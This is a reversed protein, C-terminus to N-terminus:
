HQSMGLIWGEIQTVHAQNPAAFKTPNTTAEIMGLAGIVSDFMDEGQQAPGFGNRIEAALQPQLTIKNQRCWRLIADTQESRKQQQGKGFSRPLGIHTYTEAPYAEAVVIQNGALLHSLEGDFPWLVIQKASLAPALLDRWGTIAARGVQKAGLTWFLESARPRNPTAHDCSRLLELPSALGLGNALQRKATGGPKLPFFPRELSIEQATSAPSYFNEGFKLLASAFDTIGSKEAYVRPLGIPFDFGALIAGTPQQQRLSAFFTELPGVPTPQAVEYTDGIRIARCQWRKAAATSWDCHVILPPM